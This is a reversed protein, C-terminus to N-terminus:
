IRRRRPLNWSFLAASGFALALFWYPFAAVMRSPQLSFRPRWTSLHMESISQDIPEFTLQSQPSANAHILELQLVGEDSILMFGYHYLVTIRYERSYSSAWCFLSLLWLAAWFIRLIRLLRLM